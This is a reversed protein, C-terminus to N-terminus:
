TMPFGRPLSQLLFSQVVETERNELNQHTKRISRDGPLGDGSGVLGSGLVVRDEHVEIHTYPCSGLVFLVQQTHQLTNTSIQKM